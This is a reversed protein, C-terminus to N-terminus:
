YTNILKQQVPGSGLKRKVDTMYWGDVLGDMWIDMWWVVLSQALHQTCQALLSVRQGVKM